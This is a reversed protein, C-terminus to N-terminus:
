AKGLAKLVREPTPPYTDVWKGIANYIAPITMATCYTTNDEGVGTSGYPGYGLRNTVMHHSIPPADLITLIKYDLFNPNLRIGTSPDYVVEEISGTSYGMIAGGYMQGEVTEPGIPIGVDNVCVANTLDVKGTEPDVEVEVINICRSLFTNNTPAPPLGMEKANTETPVAVIGNLVPINKVPTTKEPTNKVVINSDVIDLDDIAEGLIQAAAALMKRKLLRATQAVTWAQGTFVRSGGGGRLKIKPLSKAGELHRPYKVDELKMGIEEAIIRCYNTRSDVGPDGKEAAMIVKSGDFSLMPWMGLVNPESITGGNSFEADISVHMGHLKGNPLMREGPPHIKDDINIVKKAVKLVEELSDVDPIANETKYASVWDMDRGAFGENLKVLAEESLGTEDAVKSFVMTKIKANMQQECRSPGFGPKNLFVTKCEGAVNPIKTLDIFHGEGCTTPLFGMDSMQAVTSNIQVATILGDKKFGVKINFKGEEMNAWREDKRKMMLKVPANAKNSLYAAIPIQATQHYFGGEWGGFQAGAYPLHTKIQSPDIGMILATHADKIHSKVNQWVELTGNDAWRAISTLVEPGFGIVETRKFDVDIIQDADDFGKQLDTGQLSYKTIHNINTANNKGDWEGEVWVNDEAYTCSWELRFPFLSKPDWSTRYDYVIPAGPELAKDYDVVFPLAEWEVKVLDIAEDAIDLDDAAIAVGIPCGEFFAEPGLVYIPTAMAIPFLTRAVDPDWPNFIRKPVMPDDYRLVARVGPLAEAESTDMSKIRAHAYPSMLSRAYLMGPLNVDRTYIAKGKAKEDSDFRNIGRKGVWKLDEKEKGLWYQYKSASM